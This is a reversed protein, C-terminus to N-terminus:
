ALSHSTHVALVDYHPVAMLNEEILPNSENCGYSDDNLFTKYGKENLFRWLQQRRELTLHRYMEVHITPRNQDIIEELSQLVTLDFGETDIKIFSVKSIKEPMNEKMWQVLQVTPVELPFAHGHRWRSVGGLEGGNCFGPDSYHFTLQGSFNAAAAQLPVINTKSRNLAANKVLTDFVFPNPEVALVCGEAGCALALQISFDGGHAGVDIVTDGTRIYRKLADIQEQNFPRFYDKPHQWKEFQIEGEGPLTFRLARTGYRKAKPKIGLTWILSKLKM